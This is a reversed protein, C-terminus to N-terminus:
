VSLNTRPIDTRTGGHHNSSLGRRSTDHHADNTTHAPFPEQLKAQCKSVISSAPRSRRRSECPPHRLIYTQPQLVLPVEYQSVTMSDDEPEECDPPQSVLLVAYLEMPAHDNAEVPSPNEIEDTM